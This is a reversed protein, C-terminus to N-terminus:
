HGLVDLTRVNIYTTELFDFDFFSISIPTQCCLNITKSVTFVISITKDNVGVLLIVDM